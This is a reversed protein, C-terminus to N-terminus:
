ELLSTVVDHEPEARHATPRAERGLRQPREPLALVLGFVGREELMQARGEARGDDLDAVFRSKRVARPAFRPEDALVAHPLDLIRILSPASRPASGGSQSRKM